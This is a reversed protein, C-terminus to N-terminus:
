HKRPMYGQAALLYSGASSWSILFLLIIVVVALGLDFPVACCACGLVFFDDDFLELAGNGHCLLYLGVEM